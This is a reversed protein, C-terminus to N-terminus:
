RVTITTIASALSHLADDHTAQLRWRGKPLKLYASYYSKQKRTSLYARFTRVDAPNSVSTAYRPTHVPTLWGNVTFVWRSRAHGHLKPATISATTFAFQYSPSAGFSALQMASGFDSAASAAGTEDFAIVELTHDAETLVPSDFRWAVSDTGAGGTVTAPQWDGGDIRAMVSVIAAPFARNSRARGTFSPTSDATLDGQLPNITVSIPPQATAAMRISALSFARAPAVSAGLPEDVVSVTSSQNNSVYAQHPSLGEDVAVGYPGTGATTTVAALDSTIISVNNSGYNTVFVKRQSQDVAVSRPSTGVSVTSVISFTSTSVVSVNASGYNAVFVRGGTSDVGLGRPTVGVTLTGIVTDSTGIAFLQNSGEATVYAIGTGPDVAVAKPSTGASLTAINSDTSGDIVSVDGSGGNACYIRRRGGSVFIALSRPSAGVTLRKILAGTTANHVDVSNLGYVAVYLKPPSSSPDLALSRPGGGHAAGTSLTAIVSSSAENIINTTGRWFNGVYARAPSALSDVVVCNAYAFASGALSVTAVRSNTTGDIVTVNDSGSNAVYVRHSVPNVAIANPQLGAGITAIVTDGSFALPPAAAVLALALAVAIATRGHPFPRTHKM